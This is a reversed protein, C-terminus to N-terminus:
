EDFYEAALDVKLYHPRDIASLVESGENLFLSSFTNNYKGYYIDESCDSSADSAIMKRMRRLRRQYISGFNTIIM